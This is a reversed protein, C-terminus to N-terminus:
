CGAMGPCEPLDEVVEKYNHNMMTLCVTPDTPQILFLKGDKFTGLSRINVDLGDPTTLRGAYLIDGDPTEEFLEMEAKGGANNFRRIMEIMDDRKKCEDKATFLRMDPHYLGELKPRVDNEFDHRTGDFHSYFDKLRQINTANTM